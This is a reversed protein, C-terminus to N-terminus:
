EGFYSLQRLGKSGPDRILIGYLSGIKSLM